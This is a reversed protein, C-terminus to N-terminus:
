GHYDGCEKTIHLKGSRPNSHTASSHMASGATALVAAVVVFSSLALIRKM